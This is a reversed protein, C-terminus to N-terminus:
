TQIRKEIVLQTLVAKIIEKAGVKWPLREFNLFGATKTGAMFVFYPPSAERPATFLDAVWCLAGRKSLM